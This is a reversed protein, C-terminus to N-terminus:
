VIELEYKVKCGMSTETTVGDLTDMTRYCIMGFILVQHLIGLDTRTHLVDRAQPLASWFRTSQTRRIHRSAVILTQDESIRVQGM